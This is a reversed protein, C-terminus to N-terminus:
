SHRLSFQMKKLSERFEDPDKAAEQLAKKLKASRTCKGVKAAPIFVRLLADDDQPRM